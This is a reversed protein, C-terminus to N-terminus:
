GAARAARTHGCCPTSAASVRLAVWPLRELYCATEPAQWGLVESAAASNQQLVGGLPRISRDGMVSALRATVIDNEPWRLGTMPFARGRSIGTLDNTLFIALRPQNVLM